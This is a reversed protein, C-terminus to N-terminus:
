PRSQHPRITPAAGLSMFLDIMTSIPANDLFSGLCVHLATAFTSRTGNSDHILTYDIRVRRRVIRAEDRGPHEQSPMRGHVDKARSSCPCGRGHDASISAHMYAHVAIMYTRDHVLLGRYRYGHGTAALLWVPPTTNGRDWDEKPCASQVCESGARRMGRLRGDDHNPNPVNQKSEWTRCERLL